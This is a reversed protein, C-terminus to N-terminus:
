SKYSPLRRPHIKASCNLFFSPKWALKQDETLAASDEEYDGAEALIEGEEYEPQDLAERLGPTVPAATSGGGILLTMGHTSAPHTKRVMDMGLSVFDTLRNFVPKM